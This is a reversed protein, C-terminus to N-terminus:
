IPLQLINTVIVFEASSICLDPAPIFATSPLLSALRLLAPLCFTLSIAPCDSRMSTGASVTFTCKNNQLKTAIASIQLAIASRM